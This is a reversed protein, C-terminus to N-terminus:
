SEKFQSVDVVFSGGAYYFTVFYFAYVCETRFSIRISKPCSEERDKESGCSGVLIKCVM